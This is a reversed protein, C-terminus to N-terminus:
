APAGLRQRVDAPCDPHVAVYDHVRDKSMAEIPVLKVNLLRIPLAYLRYGLDRLVALSRPLRTGDPRDFEETVIVRPKTKALFDIAGQLVNWEFGEVDMKIFDVRGIGQAVAYESLRRVPVSAEKVVGGHGEFALSAGGYNHEPVFLPLETDREGLALEHLAIKLAPNEALARRLYVLIKPNPEFAHVIGSSGARKAMRLATLGYNAGIDMAVDGPLVSQDIVWSIKYDLDGTYYISRGVHDALSVKLQGGEVRVREDRESHPCIIRFPKSNVVMGAGSVFPFAKMVLQAAVDFFNAM